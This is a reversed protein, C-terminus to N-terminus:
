SGQYGPNQILKKNADLERLPVPFVLSPANFPLAGTGVSTARTRKLDHIRFGEFSLELRREKLVDELTVVTLKPVGARSRIVNIDELPEAGTRTGLRVNSEARILFMETIRVVPVDGFQDTYKATYRNTGVTYFFKGRIDATDYLVFYKPQLRVDGRGQFRAAAYYTQLQNTGFKEDVYIRFIHENKFGPAEDSFIEEFEEAMTNNSTTIVRNAADRAASFNGQQLYLRALIAQAAAKNARVGNGLKNAVPLLTEAKTLDSIAQAYVDAVSNRPVQDAASVSTTPKLVIPVALNTANDGDGWQKGYFRVLEFYLMGRIFLAEGEVRARESEEVIALASLVGNVRNITRYSGMWLEQAGLNNNVLVKRYIEALYEFTGGFVVERDDGLLDGYLQAEGGYLYLSGLGGFNVTSSSHYAGTLAVQVGQSTALSTSADIQTVPNINLNGDCSTIILVAGFASIWRMLTPKHCVLSFLSTIMIFM